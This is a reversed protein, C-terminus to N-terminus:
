TLQELWQPISPSIAQLTTPEEFKCSLADAVMNELGKRYVIEYDYGLLKIM